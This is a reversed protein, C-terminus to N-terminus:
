AAFMASDHKLTSSSDDSRQTESAVDFSLEGRLVRVDSPADIGLVVRNGNVRIVTIRVDEGIFLDQGTKRSLVLM